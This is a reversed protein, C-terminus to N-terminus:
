LPSNKTSRLPAAKRKKKEKNYQPAYLAKPKRKNYTSVVAYVEISKFLTKPTRHEHGLAQFKYIKNCESRLYCLLIYLFDMFLYHSVFVQLSYGDDAKTDPYRIYPHNQTRYVTYITYQVNQKNNVIRHVLFYYVSM